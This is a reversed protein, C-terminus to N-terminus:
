ILIVERKDLLQLIKKHKFINIFIYIHSYTYTSLHMFAM